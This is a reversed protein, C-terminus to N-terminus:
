RLFIRKTYDHIQLLIVIPLAILFILIALLCLLIDDWRTFSMGPTRIGISRSLKETLNLMILFAFLTAFSNIVYSKIRKM